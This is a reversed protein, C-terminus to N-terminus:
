NTTNTYTHTSQERHADANSYTSKINVANHATAQSSRLGVTPRVSPRPRSHKIKLRDRDPRAQINWKSRPGRDVEFYHVAAVSRPLPTPPPPPYPPPGSGRESIFFSTHMSYDICRKLMNGDKSKALNCMTRAM